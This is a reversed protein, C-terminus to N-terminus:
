RYMYEWVESRLGRGFDWIAFTVSYGIELTSLVHHRLVDSLFCFM